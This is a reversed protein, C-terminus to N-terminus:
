GALAFLSAASRAADATLLLSAVSAIVSVCAAFSPGAVLAVGGALVALLTTTLVPRQCPQQKLWWLAAQVAARCADNWRSRSRSESPAPEPQHYEQSWLDEQPDHWDDPERRRRDLPYIGVPPEEPVGLLNRM